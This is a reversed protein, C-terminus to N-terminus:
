LSMPLLSANSFQPRHLCFVSTHTQPKRTKVLSWVLYPTIFSPFAMVDTMRSALLIQQLITDQPFLQCIRVSRKIQSSLRDKNLQISKKKKKWGTDLGDFKKHHPCHTTLVTLNRIKFQLFDIFSVRLISVKHPGVQFQFYTINKGQTFKIKIPPSYTSRGNM